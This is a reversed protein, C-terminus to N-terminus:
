MMLHPMDHISKDCSQWQNQHEGNRRALLVPVERREALIEAVRGGM